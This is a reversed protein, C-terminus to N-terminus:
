YKALKQTMRTKTASLIFGLSYFLSCFNSGFPCVQLDLEHQVNQKSCKSKHTMCNYCGKELPGYCRRKKPRQIHMSATVVTLFYIIPFTDCFNFTQRFKLGSWCYYCIYITSAIEDREENTPLTLILMGLQSLM